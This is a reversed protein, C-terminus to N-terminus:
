LCMDWYSLFSLLTMLTKKHKQSRHAYFNYLSHQHWWKNTLLSFTPHFTCFPAKQAFLLDSKSRGSLASRFESPFRICNKVTFDKIFVIVTCFNKQPLYSRSNHTVYRLASIRQCFIWGAIRSRILPDINFYSSVAKLENM